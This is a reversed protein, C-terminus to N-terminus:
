SSTYKSLTLLSLCVPPVRSGEARGGRQKQRSWGQDTCGPSLVHKPRLSSAAVPTRCMPLPTLLLRLMESRVIRM